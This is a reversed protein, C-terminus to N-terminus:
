QDSHLGTTAEQVSQVERWSSSSAPVEDSRLLRYRKALWRSACKEVVEPSQTTIHIDAEHCLKVALRDGDCLFIDSTGPRYIGDRISQEIWDPLAAVAINFERWLRDSEANCAVGYM